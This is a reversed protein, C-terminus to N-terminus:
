HCVPYLWYDSSFMAAKRLRETAPLSQYFDMFLITQEEISLHQWNACVAEKSHGWLQDMPNLHPSRKPLWLLTIDLDEALSQSQEDIHAPNEDLLLALPQARYHDHLEDLFEQFELARKRLLDLCFLHGTRLNLTGFVTRRANRGSILVPAKQGRRGWGARLSPFLLLDTEDEAL